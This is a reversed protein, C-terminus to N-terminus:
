VFDTRHILPLDVRDVGCEAVFFIGAFVGVGVPSNGGAVAHYM